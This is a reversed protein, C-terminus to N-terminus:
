CVDSGCPQEDCRHVWRPASALTSTMDVSISANFWIAVATGLATGNVTRKGWNGGTGTQCHAPCNSLFASHRAPVADLAAVMAHGYNVWFAEETGNACKGVTCDLGLIAKEQWTDYKSNVIMMPTSVFPAVNAGFMCHWADAPGYHALCAANVGDSANWASYGWQMVSPFRPTGVIDNHELSFMADALGLVRTRSPRLRAAVYDTHLYATLGGASCGAYLVTDAGDMGRQKVLDDLLADLLRRGRYYVTVNGAQPDSYTETADGSWSGGDCYMAYVVNWSDFPPTAFLASGEYTDSYTPPWNKSSGLSTQARSYCDATSRCWGGGQHFIIWRKAGGGAGSAQRLYYGGPGGDLCVAGSSQAAQTLLVKQWTDAGADAAIAFPSLLISVASLFLMM